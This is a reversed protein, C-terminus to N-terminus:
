DRPSPSTYLLCDTYLGGLHGLLRGTTGDYTFADAQSDETELRVNTRGAIVGHDNIGWAEGGEGLEARLQRLSSGDFVFPREPELGVVDSPDDPVCRGAVRGENNIALPSVTGPYLASLDVMRGAAHVFAFSAGDPATARGIADGRENIATM